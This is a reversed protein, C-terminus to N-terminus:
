FIGLAHLLYLLVLLGAVIGVATKVKPPIPGVFTEFAYALLWFLLGAVVVLIVLHILATIM